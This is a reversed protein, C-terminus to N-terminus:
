HLAMKKHFSFQSWFFRVTCSLCLSSWFRGALFLEDNGSAQPSLMRERKQSDEGCVQLTPITKEIERNSFALNPYTSDNLRLWVALSPTLSQPNLGLARVTSSRAEFGVGWSHKMSWKWIDVFWFFWFSPTKGSALPEHRFLWRNWHIRQCSTGFSVTFVLWCGWNHSCDNRKFM